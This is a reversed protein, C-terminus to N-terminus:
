KENMEPHTESETVFGKDPAWSWRTIDSETTELLEVFEAPFQSRAGAVWWQRVGPLDLHGAVRNIERDWVAHDIAGLEYMYHTAQAMQVFTYHWMAFHQYSDETLKASDYFGDSLSDALDRDISNMESNVSVWTQYAAARVSATNTRMEFGLFILSAVIAVVGIVEFLDKRQERNL